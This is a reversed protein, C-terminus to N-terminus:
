RQGRSKLFCPEPEFRDRAISLLTSDEAVSHGPRRFGMSLFVAKGDVFMREDTVM